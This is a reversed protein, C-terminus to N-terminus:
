MVEYVDITVRTMSQPLLLDGLFCSKNLWAHRSSGTVEFRPWTRMYYGKRKEEEEGGEGFDAKAGFISEVTGRGARGFGENTVSILTEGEGEGEGEKKPNGNTTVRLTYKASVHVVGDPRIVNWDGGGPLVTGNLTPGVVTGGTIPIFRRKGAHTIGFDQPPGLDIHLTFAYELGPPTPM